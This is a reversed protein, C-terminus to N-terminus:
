SLSLQKFIDAIAEEGSGKWAKRAREKQVEMASHFGAEDVTLGAEDTVAATVDLPFGYTDYLEFALEGPIQNTGQKKLHSIRDNLIQLGSDLTELFREEEAQVVKAIYPQSDILEPYAEKMVQVVEECSQYLFPENLNLKKGHRTARRIIRRLVYGRGENSPLVGDNILFVIARLHDAIVQMSIDTLRNSGYVTQCITAIY